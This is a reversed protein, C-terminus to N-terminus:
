FTYRFSVTHSSYAVVIGYGHTINSSVQVPEFLLADDNLITFNQSYSKLYKFYEEEISYLTIIFETEFGTDQIMQFNVMFEMMQGNLNQDNWALISLGDQIHINMNIDETYAEIPQYQDNELYYAGLMYYNITPAPDRISLTVYFDTEDYYGYGNWQRNIVVSTDFGIIEVPYPVTVVTSAEPMGYTDVTIKYEHGLQPKFDTEFYDGRDSSSFISTIFNDNQYYQVIAGTVPKFSTASPESSSVSRSLNLWLGYDPTLLGNMVIKQEEDPLDIFITKECASLMIIMLGAPLLVKIINKMNTNM